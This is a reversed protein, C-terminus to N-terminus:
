SDCLFAWDSVVVFTAVPAYIYGRACFDHAFTGTCKSSNQNPTWGTNCEACTEDGDKVCRAGSAPTGNSCNCINATFAFIVYAHEDSRM